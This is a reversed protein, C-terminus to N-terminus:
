RYEEKVVKRLVKVQSPSLDDQETKAYITLMLLTERPAAWYYIVRTGGRRGRGSLGWRVKRIGGSGPVVAGLTPRNVLAAQLQRYEDDSLLAVVQRTFFSTEVIDM